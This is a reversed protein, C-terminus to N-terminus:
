HKVRKLKESDGAESNCIYFWYQGHRSFVFPQINNHELQSRYKRMIIEKLSKIIVPYNWVLITDGNNDKEIFM